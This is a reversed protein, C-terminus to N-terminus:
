LENSNIKLWNNLFISTVFGMADRYLKRLEIPILNRIENWCYYMQQSKRQTGLIGLALCSQDLATPDWTHRRSSRLPSSFSQYRKWRIDGRQRGKEEKLKKRRELFLRFLVPFTVLSAIVGLELSTWNGSENLGIVRHNQECFVILEYPVIFRVQSNALYKGLLSILKIVWIHM